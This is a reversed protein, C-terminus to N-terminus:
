RSEIKNLTLLLQEASQTLNKKWDILTNENSADSIFKISHFPIKFQACVYALAYAEMDFIDCETFPKQKEVFDASGCIVQPLDTLNSTHFIQTPRALFNTAERRIFSTCEVIDGTKFKLSGATGLNLVRLFKEHRILKTLYATLNYTARISGVGCYLPTFGAKEFHGQSEQQLALVILSKMRETESM